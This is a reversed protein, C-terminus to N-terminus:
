IFHHRFKFDAAFLQREGVIGLCLLWLLAVTRRQMSRITRHRLRYPSCRFPLFRAPIVARRNMRPRPPDKVRHFPERQSGGRRASRRAPKPWWPRYDSPGGARRPRLPRLAVVGVVLHARWRVTRSRGEGGGSHKSKFTWQSRRM